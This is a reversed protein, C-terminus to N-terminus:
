DDLVAQMEVITEIWTRRGEARFHEDLLTRHFRELIGNSQPRGVRTM